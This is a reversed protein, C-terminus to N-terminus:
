KKRRVTVKYETDCNLGPPLIEPNEDLFQRMNGQHIRKELLDVCEHELMFRNMADWDSTWFKNRTSRYFTGSKTKVSEVGHEECHKNFETELLTLKSDLAEERERFDRALEAKQDRIRIFVKVLRDLDNPDNDM